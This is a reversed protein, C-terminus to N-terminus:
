QLADVQESEIVQKTALTLRNEVSIALWTGSKVRIPLGKTEM